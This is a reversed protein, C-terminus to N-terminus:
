GGLDGSLDRVEAGVVQYTARADIIESGTQLLEVHVVSLPLPDFHEQALFLLDPTIQSLVIELLQPLKTRAISTDDHFHPMFRTAQYHRPFKDMKLYVPKDNLRASKM